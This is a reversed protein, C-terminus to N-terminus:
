GLNIIKDKDSTRAECSFKNVENTFTSYLYATSSDFENGCTDVRKFVTQSNNKSLLEYIEKLDIKCLSALHTNSFGM